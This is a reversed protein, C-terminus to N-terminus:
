KWFARLTGRKWTSTRHHHCTRGPAPRCSKTMHDRLLKEYQVKSVVYLNRTKDASVNVKNCQKINEMYKKLREQLDNKTKRFQVNEILWLLDDEFAELEEARPPCKRTRFGFTEKTETGDTEEDRKLFFFGSWRMRKILDEIREMQKRTYPANSKVPLYM